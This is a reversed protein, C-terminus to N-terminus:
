EWEINVPPPQYPPPQYNNNYVPQTQTQTIKDLSIIEKIEGPEKATYKKEYEYYGSYVIKVTKSQGKENFIVEQPTNGLYTNNIYVKAKEPRSYLILVFKFIKKLNANIEYDGCTKYTLVKEWKFYTKKEVRIKAGPIAPCNFVLPTKGILKDNLYVEADSPNSKLSIKYVPELKVDLSLTPKYAFKNFNIEKEFDQHCDKTIKIKYKAPKLKLSYETENILCREKGNIYLRAPTQKLNIILEANQFQFLILPTLLLILVGIAIFLVKKNQKKPPRSLEEEILQLEQKLLQAEKSKLIELHRKEEEIKALEKKLKEEELRKLEELRRKEEEIKKYEEIIKLEEKAREEELRKKEVEIRIREEIKRQEDIEKLSEIKRKEDELRKLEQLRKEEELKRLEEIRNKEEDLRTKEEQRIKEELRKREELKKQEEELRLREKAQREEEIRRIEELRSKEEELKKIENLRKEDELKKQETNQLVFKQEQLKKHAEARKQEALLRLEERKKDLELKKQEKLKDTETHPIPATPQSDAKHDIINLLEFLEKKQKEEDM